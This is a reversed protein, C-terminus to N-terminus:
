PRLFPASLFANIKIKDRYYVNSSVLLYITLLKFQKFIALESICLFIPM